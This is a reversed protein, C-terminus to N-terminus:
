WNQQEDLLRAVMNHIETRARRRSVSERKGSVDLFYQKNEKFLIKSIGGIVEVTVPTGVEVESWHDHFLQQSTM